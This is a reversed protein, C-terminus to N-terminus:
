DHRLDAGRYDVQAFNEAVFGVFGQSASTLCIVVAAITM